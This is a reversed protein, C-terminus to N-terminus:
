SVLKLSVNSDLSMLFSDIRWSQAWTRPWPDPNVLSNLFLVLLTSDLNIQRWNIPELMPHCETWESTLPDFCEVETM